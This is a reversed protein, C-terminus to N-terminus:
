LFVLNASKRATPLNGRDSSVGKETNNLCFWVLSIALINALFIDWSAKGIAKM